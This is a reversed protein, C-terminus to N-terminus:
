MYMHRFMERERERKERALIHIYTYVCISIKVVVVVFCFSCVRERKKGNLIEKMIEQMKEIDTLNYQYRISFRNDQSQSRGAHDTISPIPQQRMWTTTSLSSSSSMMKEIYIYNIILWYCTGVDLYVDVVLLKTRIRDVHRSGWNKDM